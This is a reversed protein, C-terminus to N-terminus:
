SPDPDTAAAAITKARALLESIEALIAEDTGEGRERAAEAGGDVRVRLERLEDELEVLWDSLGESCGDLVDFEGERLITQHRADLVEIPRGAVNTRRVTAVEPPTSEGAVLIRVRDGKEYRRM